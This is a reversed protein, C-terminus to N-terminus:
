KGLQLIAFYVSKVILVKNNIFHYVLCECSWWSFSMNYKRPLNTVVRQFVTESELHSFSDQLTNTRLSYSFLLSAGDM